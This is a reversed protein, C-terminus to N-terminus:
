RHLKTVLAKTTTTLKYNKKRVILLQGCNDKPLLLTIPTIM